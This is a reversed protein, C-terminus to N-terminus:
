PNSKTNRKMSRVSWVFGVSNLEDIREQSLRSREGNQLKRYEQRQRDVWNGLNTQTEPVRYGAPVICHGKLRKFEVLENFQEAWRSAVPKGWEFGIADMKDIKEQTIKSKKGAMFRGHRYRQETFWRDLTINGAFKHGEPVRCHGNERHFQELLAFNDEFTRSTQANWAFNIRNLRDIRKQSIKAYKGEQYLRYEQRQKKVWEGLNSGDEAQYRQPVNPHGYDHVFRLLNQYHKEWKEKQPSGFDFGLEELEKIRQPGLASIRRGERRRYEGRQNDVWRGLAVGSPTLYEFPVDCDGHQEKYERLLQLKESWSLKRLAISLAKTGDNLKRTKTSRGLILYEAADLDPVEAEHETQEEGEWEPLGAASSDSVGNFPHAM